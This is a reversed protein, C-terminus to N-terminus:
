NPESQEQKRKNEIAKTITVNIDDLLDSILNELDSLFALTIKQVKEQPSPESAAQTVEEGDQDSVLMTQNGYLPKYTYEYSM